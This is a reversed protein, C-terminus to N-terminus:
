SKCGAQNGGLDPLGDKLDVQRYKIGYNKMSGMYDGTITGYFHTM